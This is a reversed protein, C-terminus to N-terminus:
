GNLLGRRTMAQMLTESSGSSGSNGAKKKLYYDYINNGAVGLANGMISNNNAQQNQYQQQLQGQGAGYLSAM